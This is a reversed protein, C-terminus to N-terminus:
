KVKEIDSLNGENEPDCWDDDDPPAIETVKEDDDVEEGENQGYENEKNEENKEENKNNEGEKLERKKMNEEIEKPDLLNLHVEINPSIHKTKFTPVITKTFNTDSIFNRMQKMLIIERNKLNQLNESYIQINKLNDSNKEININNQLNETEKQLNELKQKKDNVEQEIFCKKKLIDENKKM